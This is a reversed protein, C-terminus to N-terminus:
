HQDHNDDRSHDRNEPKAAQPRAQPAREQRQQVQKQQQTRQQQQRQQVQQQQVRQQQQRQQTQQQQARQQQQRQQTQQESRQQQQQKQQRQQQTQRQQEQQQQSEKQQQQRQAQENPRAQQQQAQRNDPRNQTQAPGRQQTGQMRNQQGPQAPRMQSVPRATPRQIGKDANLPRSVVTSPRGRNQSYFQQRNQSAQVRNKVQASMPATKPGRMAVLESRNPRAQLGGRGGNYAIRTNNNVIVTRNYVNTIRNVNIRNVSRNYYFNNNRWYGGYYGTGTYGYGYNVGGYFGIHLGWYGRYFRYQGGYFGWYGPTWLAGSYPAVVWAGPVWYYGVPAYSWYGPTWIYNPGPAEPQEYTPLAPPPQDSQEIAQQGADVEDDYNQNNQDNYDQESAESQDPQAAPQAAGNQQYQAAQQQSENQIPQGQAPAQAPPQVAAQAPNSGDVPAMNADAPDPGSDNATQGALAQKHCGSFGAMGAVMAIGVAVGLWRSRGSRRNLYTDM